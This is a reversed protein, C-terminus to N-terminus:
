PFRKAYYNSNSRPQDNHIIDKTRICASFRRRFSIITSIDMSLLHMGFYHTMQWYILSRVSFKTVLLFFFSFFTTFVGMYDNYIASNHLNFVSSSMFFLICHRHIVFLSLFFPLYFLMYKPKHYINWLKVKWISRFYSPFTAGM